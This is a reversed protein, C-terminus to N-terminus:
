GPIYAAAAFASVARFAPSFLDIEVTTPM